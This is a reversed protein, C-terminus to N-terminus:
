SLELGVFKDLSSTSSTKDKAQDHSKLFETIKEIASRRESGTPQKRKKKPPMERLTLQEVIEELTISYEPKKPDALLIEFNREGEEEIDHCGMCYKDIFTTVSEDLETAAYTNVSLTFLSLSLALAGLFKIKNGIYKM